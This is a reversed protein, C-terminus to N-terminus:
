PKLGTRTVLVAMAPSKDTVNAEVIVYATEASGTAIRRDLVAYTDTGQTTIGRIFAYEGGTRTGMTSRYILPSGVRLKDSGTTVKMRSTDEWDATDGTIQEATVQNAAARKRYAVAVLQYAQRAQDSPEAFARRGLLVFGMLNNADGHPYRQSAQSLLGTETDDALVALSSGTFNGANLVTMAEALGNNCIITGVADNISNANDSLAAPFLTVVMGLGIGLIGVAILIEALSFGVRATSSRWTKPTQM